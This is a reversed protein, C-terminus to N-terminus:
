VYSVAKINYRNKLVVRHWGKHGKQCICDLKYGNNVYEKSLLTYDESDFSEKVFAYTLRKSM